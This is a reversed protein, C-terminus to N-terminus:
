ACLLASRVLEVAAQLSDSQADGQGSLRAQSLAYARDEIRQRHHEILDERCGHNAEWAPVADPRGRHIMAIAM